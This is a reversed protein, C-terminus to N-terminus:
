VRRLAEDLPELYPEAAPIVHTLLSFAHIMGPAEHFSARGGVARLRDAWLRAEDHLPDCEAALIVAPPLGPPAPHLAPSVLPDDARGDPGLYCSAFWELDDRDVGHGSGYEAVSRRSLTLDLWPCILYIQKVRPGHCRVALRAVAAALSGGASTGGVALRRRDAGFAAAHHTLWLLADYGDEIAAPFRHEPALRYGVSVVLAPTRAAIRRAEHESEDIGGLVFGGGHFYLIAPLKAEPAAPPRFLRIPLPGGRAAIVRDEVLAMPAMPPDLEAILTRLVERAREPGLEPTPPLDQAAGWAEVDRLYAAAEPHLPM